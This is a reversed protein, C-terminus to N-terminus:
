PPSSAPEGQSAASASQTKTCGVPSCHTGAGHPQAPNASTGSVLPVPDPNSAGPLWPAPDPNSAGPVWPSPDPNSAGAVWPSPDPNSAGAVWPSPDPNSAGAVWPPPGAQVSLPAVPTKPTRETIAQQTSISRREQEDAAGPEFACGTGFSAVILAFGLVRM